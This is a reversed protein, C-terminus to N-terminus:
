RLLRHPDDVPPLPRLEDAFRIHNEDRRMHRTRDNSQLALRVASAQWAEQDVWVRQSAQIWDAAIRRLTPDPRDTIKLRDREQQLMPHPLPCAMPRPRQASTEGNPLQEPPRQQARHRARCGRISAPARVPLPRQLRSEVIGCPSALHLAKRPSVFDARRQRRNPASLDSGRLSDPQNRSQM